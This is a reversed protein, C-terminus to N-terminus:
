EGKWPALDVSNGDADYIKKDQLCIQVFKLALEQTQQTDEGYVNFEKGLLEPSEIRCYYNRGDLTEFPGEIKLSFPRRQGSVQVFATIYYSDNM